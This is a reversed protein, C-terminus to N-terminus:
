NGGCLIISWKFGFYISFVLKPCTTPCPGNIM